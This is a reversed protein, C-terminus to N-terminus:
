KFKNVIFEFCEELKLAQEKLQVALPDWDEGFVHFPNTVIM